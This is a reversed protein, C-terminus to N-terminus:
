SMSWAYLGRLLKMLIGSIGMGLLIASLFIMIPNNEFDLYEPNVPYFFVDAFANLLDLM